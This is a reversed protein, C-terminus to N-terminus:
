PTGRRHPVKRFFIPFRGNRQSLRLLSCAGFGAPRKNSGGSFYRAGTAKGVIENAIQFRFINEELRALGVGVDFDDVEASGLLDGRVLWKGLSDSCYERREALGVIDRWLHNFFAVVFFAVDPRASDNEEDHKAAIRGEIAVALGLEVISNLSSNEIKVTNEFM